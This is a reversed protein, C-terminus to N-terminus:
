VTINVAMIKVQNGKEHADTEEASVEAFQEEGM